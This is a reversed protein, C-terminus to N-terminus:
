VKQCRRCFHTSRGALRVCRIPTGCRLCPEGTRGYVRFESQYEGKRGSGGVYDRISSGRKDIARELV